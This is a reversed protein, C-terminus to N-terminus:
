LILSPAVDSTCTYKALISINVNVNVGTDSLVCVECLYIINDVNGGPIALYAPITYRIYLPKTSCADYM